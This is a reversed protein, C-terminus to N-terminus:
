KKGGNKKRERKEIDQKKYITIEDRNSEKITKVVICRKKKLCPITWYKDGIKGIYIVDENKSFSTSQWDIEEIGNYIINKISNLDIDRDIGRQTAHKTFIIKKEFV